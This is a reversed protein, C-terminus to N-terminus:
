TAFYKMRALERIMTEINPLRFSDSCIEHTVGIKYDKCIRLDRWSKKHSCDSFGLLWWRSSNKWYEKSNWKKSFEAVVKLLKYILIKRSEEHASHHNEKLHISARSGRFLRINNEEAKISYILKIVDVKLMDIRLQRLDKYFGVVMDLIMEFYKNTELIREFIDM